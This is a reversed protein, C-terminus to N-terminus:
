SPQRYVRMAKGDADLASAFEVGNELDEAGQFTGVDLLVLEDAPLDRVFTDRAIGNEDTRLEAISYRM